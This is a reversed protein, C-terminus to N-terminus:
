ITTANIVGAQGPSSTVRAKVESGDPKKVTLVAGKTIVRRRTYDKNAPNEEVSLIECVTNKGGVTLNIKQTKKLIIKSGGGKTKKKKKSSEGVTTETFVGGKEYKRKKRSKKGTGHYM